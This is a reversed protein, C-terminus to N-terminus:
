YFKSLIYYCKSRRDTWIDITLSIHSAECIINKIEKFNQKMLREIIPGIAKRTCPTWSKTIGNMFVRFEPM